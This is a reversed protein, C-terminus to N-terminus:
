PIFWGELSLLSQFSRWAPLVLSLRTSEPMESCASFSGSFVSIFCRFSGIYVTLLMVKCLTCQTPPFFGSLWWSLGMTTFNSHKLCFINTFLGPWSSHPVSKPTFSWYGFSIKSRCLTRKGIRFFNRSPLGWLRQQLPCIIHWGDDIGRNCTLGTAKSLRMVTPKCELLYYQILATKPINIRCRVSGKKIERGEFLAQRKKERYYMCVCLYVYM